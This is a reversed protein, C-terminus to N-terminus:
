LFPWGKHKQEPPTDREEAIAMLVAARTEEKIMSRLEPLIGNLVKGAITETMSEYSRRSILDGRSFALALVVLVLMAPVTGTIGREILTLMEPTM